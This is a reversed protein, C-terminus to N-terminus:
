VYFNACLYYKNDKGKFDYVYNYSHNTNIFKLKLFSNLGVSNGIKRKDKKQRVVYSLM